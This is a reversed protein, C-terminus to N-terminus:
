SKLRAVNRKKLWNPKFYSLRSASKWEYSEFIDTYTLQMKVGHFIKGVIEAELRNQAEFELLVLKEDVALYDYNDKDYRFEKTYFHRFASMVELDQQEEEIRFSILDYITCFGNTNIYEIEGKYFRLSTIIAPGLGHNTLTIRGSLSEVGHSSEFDISVAPRVADINHQKQLELINDQLDLNSQQLELNSQQLGLNIEFQKKSEANAEQAVGLSDKAVKVSDQAAKVSEQTVKVSDQAVKVSEQAAKASEQAAKASEQNSKLIRITAGVYIATIVIMLLDTINDVIWKLVSAIWECNPM